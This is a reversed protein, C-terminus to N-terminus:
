DLPLREQDTKIRRNAMEIYTPNLEIGVYDRGAAKAVVAVTGAGSFPDLILAPVTPAGVHTCTPQWGTTRVDLSARPVGEWGQSNPQTGGSIHARGGSSILPEKEVVRRWPAGCVACCGRESTGLKVFPRVLAEPFTAYHAESFAETNVDLGVIEDGVGVLGHPWTLSEYWLDTNRFNRGASDRYGEQTREGGDRAATKGQDFRSGNAGTGGSRRVADMDAFYTASKSLLFVYELASSPRDTVSEPMATRKVWPLASRLWWGDAQLAMAVRHPILCLDKPKLGPPASTPPRWSELGDYSPQHVQSGKVIERQGGGGRNQGGYNGWSGAYSDGLNLVLLADDRMVRRVERFVAVMKAVFEAPTAELGIGKDIRRAGCKRCDRSVPDRSTGASTAQKEDGHGRRVGSHDCDADGGEWTATGYDRLGWYPPSTVVLHVCGDDLLRLTEIVDGCLIRNRYEGAPRIGMARLEDPTLTRQTVVGGSEGLSVM